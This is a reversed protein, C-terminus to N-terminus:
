DSFSVHVASLRDTKVTTAIQTHSELQCGSLPILVIINYTTTYKIYKQRLSPM